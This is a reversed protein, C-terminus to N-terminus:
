VYFLRSGAVTVTQLDAQFILHLKYSQRERKQWLQMLHQVTCKWLDKSHANLLFKYRFIFPFVLM